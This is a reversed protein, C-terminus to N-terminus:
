KLNDLENVKELLWYKTIIKDNEIEKRLQQIEVSKKNETFRCLATIYKIFNQINIKASLSLNRSNYAYHKYSDLIYELSEFDKLEYFNMIQLNRIEYKFSPIDFKIKKLLDLSNIFNNNSFNLYANAYKELNIKFAPILKDKYEDMFMIIFESDKSMAAFKIVSTFDVVSILGEDNLLLNREILLKYIDNYEYLKNRIKKNQTLATTLCSYLNIQENKPLIKDNLVLLEKFRFYSNENQNDSLSLYIQYYLNIINFNEDSKLKISEIIKEINLNEIFKDLLGSDDSYNVSIRECAQNNYLKFLNILFDYILNDSISYVIEGDNTKLSDTYEYKLWQLESIQSYIDPINGSDKLNKELTLYKSHFNKKLGKSCFQELLWYNIKFENNSFTEEALFRQTLGTLDYLINKMVGYNFKKDPYLKKWIEKRDLKSGTFEPYYNKLIDFLKIVVSKRNFYPSNIFLELKKLEDRTFTRLIEVLTTNLM